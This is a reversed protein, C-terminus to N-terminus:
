RSENIYINRGITLLTIHCIEENNVNIPIASMIQPTIKGPNQAVIKIFNKM